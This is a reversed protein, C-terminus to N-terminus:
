LSLQNFKTQKRGRADLVTGLFYYINTSNFASCITNYTNHINSIAVYALYPQLYQIKIKGLPSFVVHFLFRESFIAFSNESSM